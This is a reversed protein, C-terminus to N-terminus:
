YGFRVYDFFVTNEESRRVKMNAIYDSNSDGSTELFIEEKNYVFEFFKQGPLLLGLIGASQKSGDFEVYGNKIEATDAYYLGKGFYKVLHVTTDKQGSVKFRLKQANSTCCILIFSLVFISRM